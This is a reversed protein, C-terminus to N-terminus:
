RGLEIKLVEHHTGTVAKRVACGDGYGVMGAIHVVGQKDIARGAHSLGVQQVGDGVADALLIGVGLDDVDLAVFEGVLQDGGDLGATLRLELVLVALRIQQQHVIDLEDGTLLLGLLLEEMGEVGEVFGPLLDDHGGVPPGAVHGGQLVPQAGTELPAQQRIDLGRVILGTHGNQFILGPGQIQLQIVIDAVVDGDVDGVVDTLDLAGDLLDHGIVIQGAHLQIQGINGPGNVIHELALAISHGGGAQDDALDALEIGDVFGNQPAGLFVLVGGFGTLHGHVQDTLQGIQTQGVDALFEGPVMGRHQVGDALDFHGELAAVLLQGVVDPFDGGVDIGAQLRAPGPAM